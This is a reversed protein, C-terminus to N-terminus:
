VQQATLRPVLRANREKKVASALDKSTMVSGRMPQTDSVVTDLNPM